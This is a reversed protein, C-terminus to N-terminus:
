LLDILQEVEYESLSGFGNRLASYFDFAICDGEIEYQVAYSRYPGSNIKIRKHKFEKGDKEKEEIWHQVMGEFAGDYDCIVEVTPRM